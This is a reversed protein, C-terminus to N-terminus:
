KGGRPSTSEKEDRWSNIGAYKLAPKFIYRTYNFAAKYVSYLKSLKGFKNKYEGIVRKLSQDREEERCV